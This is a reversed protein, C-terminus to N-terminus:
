NIRFRARYVDVPLGFDTPARVVTSEDEAGSFLAKVLQLNSFYRISWRDYDIKVGFHMQTFLYDAEDIMAQLFKFYGQRIIYVNKVHNKRNNSGDRASAIVQNSLKALQSQLNELNVATSNRFLTRVNLEIQLYNKNWEEISSFLEELAAGFRSRESDLACVRHTAYLRRGIIKAFEAAAERMLEFQSKSAEFYRTQKASRQQWVYALWTGLGATILVSIVSWM